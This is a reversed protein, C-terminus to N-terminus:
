KSDMQKEIDEQAKKVGESVDEAAQDVARGTKEVPGADDKPQDCGSVGSLLGAVFLAALTPKLIKMMMRRWEVSVQSVSVGGAAV